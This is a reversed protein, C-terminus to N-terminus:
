SFLEKILLDFHKDIKQEWGGEFLCYSSSDYILIIRMLELLRLDFFEKIYKKDLLPKNLHRENKFNSDNNPLSHHFIILIIIDYIWKNEEHEKLTM